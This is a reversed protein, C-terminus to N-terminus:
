LYPLHKPFTIRRKLYNVSTFAETQWMFMHQSKLYSAIRVARELRSEFMLQLLRFSASSLMRGLTRSKALPLPALSRAVSGSGPEGGGRRCKRVVVQAMADLRERNRERERVCVCVCVHPPIKQLVMLSVLIQPNPARWVTTQKLIQVTMDSWLAASLSFQGTTHKTGSKEM